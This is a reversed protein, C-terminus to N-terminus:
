ICEVKQIRAQPKRVFVLRDLKERGVQGILVDIDVRVCRPGISISCTGTGDADLESNVPLLLAWGRSQM